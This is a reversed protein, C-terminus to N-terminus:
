KSSGAASIIRASRGDPPPNIFSAHNERVTETKL